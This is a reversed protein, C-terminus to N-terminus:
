EPQLAKERPIPALVVTNLTSSATMSREAWNLIRFSHDVDGCDHVTALRM